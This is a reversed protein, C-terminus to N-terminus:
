KDEKLMPNEHINGLIELNSGDTISHSGRTTALRFAGSIFEVRAMSYEEGNKYRVVDDEYLDRGRADQLGTFQMLNKFNGGRFYPNFHSPLRISEVKQEEQFRAGLANDIMEKGDWARFKIERM